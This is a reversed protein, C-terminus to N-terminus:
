CGKTMFTQCECCFGMGASSPHGGKGLQSGCSWVQVSDFRQVTCGSNTCNVVTRYMSTDLELYAQLIRFNLSSSGVRRHVLM